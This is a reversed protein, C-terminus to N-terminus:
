KNASRPSGLVPPLPLPVLALASTPMVAKLRSLGKSVSCAISKFALM